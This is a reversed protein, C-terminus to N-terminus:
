QKEEDQREHGSYKGTGTEQKLREVQEFLAAMKEEMDDLKHEIEDATHEGDQLAKWTKAFERPDIDGSDTFKETTM